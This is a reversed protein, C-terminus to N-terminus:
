GRGHTITTNSREPIIGVIQKVTDTLEQMARTNDERSKIDDRKLQVLEDCTNRWQDQNIKNDARAQFWIIFALIAVPGGSVLADIVSSEM